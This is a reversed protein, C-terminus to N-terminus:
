KTALTEVMYRVSLDASEKAVAIVLSKGDPGAWVRVIRYSVVGPRKRDPNGVEYEARAGNADTIVAEIRFSAAPNEADGGNEQYLTLEYERGREFDRFSLVAASGEGNEDPTVTDDGDNRTYLLRGQEMHDIGYREKVDRSEALLEYLAGRSDQNPMMPVNRGNKKWGGPVFDNRAVDVVATEAYVQGADTVLVHQGFMFYRGDPSFGLNEFVALDGAGALVATAALALAIITRKM